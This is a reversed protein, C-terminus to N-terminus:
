LMVILTDDMLFELPVNVCHRARWRSVPRREQNLKRKINGEHGESQDALKQFATCKDDLENGFAVRLSKNKAKCNLKEASYVM